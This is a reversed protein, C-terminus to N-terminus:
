PSGGTAPRRRVLLECLLTAAVAVGVCVWTLEWAVAEGDVQQLATWIALPLTRTEGALNGAFTITAGFEGLSRAFCLAAGAILGRGALPMTVSVFARWRGAGLTAAAEELGPDVAEFAQRMTRVMLPFGMVLAALAAGPWAFALPLGLQEQLFGGLLSNRGFWVLLFYGVVVPPLVMPLIVVAEVFPRLRSRTRALWLALLMGPVLGVLTAILGVKLSLYLADVAPVASVATAAAASLM